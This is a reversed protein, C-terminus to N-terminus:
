GLRRPGRRREARLNVWNGLAMVAAGVFVWVEVTESYVIYAVVAILPLRLYDIPTIVTIEALQLAKTFCYHAALGMVGIALFWYADAWNVPTWVFLAAALGMPLQLASMYFLVTVVRDTRTLAKTTTFGISFLLAAALVWLSGVSIAEIGPRLIILTGIVGGLLALGRFITLREGMFAIAIAAAFIPATFEIAFVTALPLLTVGFYWAVTGAFHAVNRAAHVGFRTTRIAAFNGPALFPLIVALSVAHRFAQIQVPHYTAALERAAIATLSISTLMGVMWLAAEIVAGPQAREGTM